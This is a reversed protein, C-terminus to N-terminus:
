HLLSPRPKTNNNYPVLRRRRRRDKQRITQDKLNRGMILLPNIKKKMAPYNSPLIWLRTLNM